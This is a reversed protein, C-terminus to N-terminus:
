PLELLLLLGIYGYTCWFTFCPSIITSSVYICRFYPCFLFYRFWCSVGDNLCPGFSGSKTPSIDPYSSILHVNCFAMSFSSGIWIKNTPGGPNPLVRNRLAISSSYGSKVYKLRALPEVPAPMILWQKQFGGLNRSMSSISSIFCDSWAVNSENNCSPQKTSVFTDFVRRNSKVHETNAVQLSVFFNFSRNSDRNAIMSSFAYSLKSSNLCTVISTNFLCGSASNIATCTYSDDALGFMLSQTRKAEIHWVSCSTNFIILTKFNLHFNTCSLDGTPCFHAQFFRPIPEALLFSHWSTDHCVTVSIDLSIVILLSYRNCFCTSLIFCSVFSLSYIM